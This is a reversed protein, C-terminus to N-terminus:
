ISPLPKWTDFDKYQISNNIVRIDFVPHNLLWEERFNKPINKSFYRINNVNSKYTGFIFDFLPCIINYNGKCEGKNLHHLTHYWLLYKYVFNEHDPIFNKIPSEVYKKHYHSHFSNWLYLYFIYVISIFILIYKLPYKKFGPFYRWFLYGLFIIFFLVYSVQLDFNFVLSEEKYDDPLSQDLRTEKHHNVHSKNRNFYELIPKVPENFHMIYYHVVWEIFSILIYLFVVFLVFDFIKRSM